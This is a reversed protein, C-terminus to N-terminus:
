AVFGKLTQPAQVESFGHAFKRLGPAAFRSPEATQNNAGVSSGPREPQPVAPNKIARGSMLRTRQEGTPLYWVPRIPARPMRAETVTRGTRIVVIRRMMSQWGPRMNIQIDGLPTGQGQRSLLRGAEGGMAKDYPAAGLKAVARIKAGTFLAMRSIRIDDLM